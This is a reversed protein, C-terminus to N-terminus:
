PRTAALLDAVPRGPDRALAQALTLYAAALRKVTAPRYLDTRYEFRGELEGGAAEDVVLAVDMQSVDLPIAQATLMLNGALRAPRGTVASGGLDFMTQFLPNRGADRAPALSRVLQGFPLDQHALALVTAQRTRRLLDAGTDGAQLGARIVVTNLLPGILGATEPRDRGAVSTGIALDLQGSWQAILLQYAALLAMFLTVGSRSALERLRAALEAPVAFPFLAGTFSSAAPRPLDAPLEQEPLGALQGRWFDLLVPGRPGALQDRQWAAYDAFQVPLGPRGAEPGAGPQYCASLEDALVSVSWGDAVAHHAVWVLVHEDPALRILRTRVLPGAALDFPAHAAERALQGALDARRAPDVRQLDAVPLDVQPDPSIVQVPQGSRLALATRLTEHRRAVATLAALLAGTDLPGRLTFQFPIHYAASGPQWRHLFLLQEQLCSAPRPGLGGARGPRPGAEAEAAPGLGAQERLRALVAAREAAPMRILEAVATM